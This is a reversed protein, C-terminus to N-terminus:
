SDVNGRIAQNVGRAGPVFPGGNPLRSSIAPMVRCWETSTKVSPAGSGNRRPDLSKISEDPMLLFAKEVVRRTRIPEHLREISQRVRSIPSLKSHSRSTAHLCCEAPITM